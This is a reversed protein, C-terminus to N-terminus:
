EPQNAPKQSSLKRTLREERHRLENIVERRSALGRIYLDAMQIARETWTLAKAADRTQHEYYKALEVCAAIQHHDAAKEWLQLTMAWNGQKRYLGAFRELTQLFFPEPMGLQMSYGYLEVAVDYQGLEEYLRAIAILDLSQPTIYHLPDSLLHAVHQFLAALSLIDMANHYMVGSLQRADGSSLYDFYIQPIAWGPVEEQTRTVGVIEVELDGLARSPLRNKWLRRALPLLDIHDYSAFPPTLGNLTHRTKLIPIDFSKGNYTVIAQFDGLYENLLYLLAPEEIPSRLLLQILHFGNEHLHGLGVLFPITGTGGGLGTTETDLFIFKGFASDALHPARGWETLVRMNLNQHFQVLGHRYDNDYTTEVVYAEGFPTSIAEGPIIAEISYPDRTKVVPKQIKSAGSQVGLAKLKDSLSEAM